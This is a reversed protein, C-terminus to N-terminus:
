CRGVPSGRLTRRSRAAARAHLAQPAPPRPRRQWEAEASARPACPSRSAAAGLGEKRAFRRLLCLDLRSPLLTRRARRATGALRRGAPQVKRGRLRGKCSPGELASARASETQQRDRARASTRARVCVSSASIRARTPVCPSSIVSSWISPSSSACFAKRLRLTRVGSNCGAARSARGTAGLQLWPSASVKGAGMVRRHLRGHELTSVNHLANRQALRALPSAPTSARLAAAGALIVLLLELLLTRLEGRGHRAEADLLAPRAPKATPHLFHRALPAGTGASPLHRSDGKWVAVSSTLNQLNSSRYCTCSCALRPCCKQRFVKARSGLRELRAGARGPPHM